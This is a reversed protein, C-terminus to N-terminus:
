IEQGLEVIDLHKVRRVVSKVQDWGASGLRSGDLTNLFSQSLALRVVGNYM